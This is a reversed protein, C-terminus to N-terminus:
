TRAITPNHRLLPQKTQADTKDPSSDDTSKDNTPIMAHELYGDEVPLWTDPFPLAPTSTTQASSDSSIWGARM